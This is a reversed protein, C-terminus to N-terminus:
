NVTTHLEKKADTSLLKKLQNGKYVLRMLIKPEDQVKKMYTDSRIFYDLGAYLMIIMAWKM